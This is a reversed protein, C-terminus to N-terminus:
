KQESPKESSEAAKTLKHGIGLAALGGVLLAWAPDAPLGQIFAVVAAADQKEILPVIKALISALGSLLSAVGAIATKKGDLFGWLKSIGGLKALLNIFFDKM